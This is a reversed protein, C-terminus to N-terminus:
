LERYLIVKGHNDVGFRSTPGTDSDSDATHVTGRPLKLPIQQFERIFNLDQYPGLGLDQKEIDLLLFNYERIM